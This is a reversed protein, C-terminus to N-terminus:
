RPLARALVIGRRESGPLRRWEGWAWGGYAERWGAAMAESVWFAAETEQGLWRGLWGPVAVMRELARVTVWRVGALRQEVASGAATPAGGGRARPQREVYANVVEVRGGLGLAEVTAQLFAAKKGTSEVLTTNLGPWALGLALGPFGAGSGVDVLAGGQALPALRGLYLAEGLHRKVLTEAEVSGVLRQPAAAVRALYQAMQAAVAATPAYGYSPLEQTILTELAALEAATEPNPSEAM